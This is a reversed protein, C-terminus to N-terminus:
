QLWGTAGPMRFISHDFEAAYRLAVFAPAGDRRQLM